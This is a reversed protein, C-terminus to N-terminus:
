KYQKCKIGHWRTLNQKTCLAGCHECATKERVLAKARVRAKTAEDHHQGQFYRGPVRIGLVYDRKRSASLKKLGEASVKIGTRGKSINARAADSHKKGLYSGLRGKKSASAKQRSLPNDMPNNFLMRYMLKKAVLPIHAPNKDGAGFGCASNNWNMCDPHGIHQAILEVEKVKLEEFTDCFEIITTSLSSKDKISRVWLGSGKYGDNLNSTTHRGVYYKGSSSVTKYLFHFVM